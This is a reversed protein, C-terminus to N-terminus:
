LSTENLVNKQQNITKNKSFLIKEVNANMISYKM